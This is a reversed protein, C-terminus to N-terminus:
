GRDDPEQDPATERPAPRWRGADDSEAWRAPSAGRAAEGATRWVAGSAADPTWTPELEPDPQEEATAPLEATAPSPAPAPTTRDDRRLVLLGWSVLLPVILTALPTFSVWATALLASPIHGAAIGVLGALVILGALVAGGLALRRRGPLAPTLFCSGALLGAVVVLVLIGAGPVLVQSAGARLATRPGDALLAVFNVLRVLLDLGLALLAVLAARGRWHAIGTMPAAYRRRVAPGSLDVARTQALAM